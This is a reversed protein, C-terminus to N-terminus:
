SLFPPHEQQEGEWEAKVSEAEPAHPFQINNQCPGDKESTYPIGKILVPKAAPRQQLRPWTNSLVFNQLKSIENEKDSQRERNKKKM